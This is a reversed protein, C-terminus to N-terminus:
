SGLAATTPVRAHRRAAVVATLGAIVVAVLVAIALTLAGPPRGIGAGLGYVRAALNILGTCAALGLSVGLAVAALALVSTRAVLSTLVQVPTLGMVRLVRVDRLHERLGVVSATILNTLGILALVGIVGAILARVVGLQDAPNAVESIDLRGGSHRVLWAQATASSAGRRLVLSYFSPPAVAGEDALTDRGYALVQGDYQPDIIRGVIRFTVLVGGFPMQVFEGVHVGLLDLLGQTAVAEEPAHYLRGQVVRFPFPHASTGMGLTTITTSEGSSVATVRVCRYAAAVGPDANVLQWSRNTGATGPSVTLSAALGIVAPNRQVEDLTSWFGLGITIMVMPVALGGITLLASLRRAFAARTGLVIAPPLRSAMAAAALASLHRQPPLQRVAAVPWVRGARWGPVATAVIVALEIGGIILLSWGWPLAVAGASVGPVAGLLRPALLPAAAVGLVLGALGLMAHESVLMLMVQVPTFGLTQLMGLDARHVLVRGGTANIIALMAAGLAVLGFLALVLGLLPDRRAMSQEVQQWTSVDQVAGTGLQTAVQQIVPGTAAPHAIRLGVVDYTDGADPQVQHLVGPLVWMLGPTQDPYFGQDSTEAIGTVTAKGVSIGDLNRLSLVSGVRAHLAQAFSSELVVGGPRATSLWRGATVVPTGIGPLRPAMERLEVPQRDAPQGDSDLVATASAARYPGAMATIGPVRYPLQSVDSGPSLRLWVQAGRTAAFLGQWPNTAGQLLAASLLLATVVGAVVLVVVAAQGRRARLDSRIWRLTARM